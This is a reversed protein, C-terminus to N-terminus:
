RASFFRNNIAQSETPIMMIYTIFIRNSYRALHGARGGSCQSVNVNLGGDIILQIVCSSSTKGHLAIVEKM